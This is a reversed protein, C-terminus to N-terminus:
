TCYFIFFDTKFRESIKICKFAKELNKYKASLIGSKDKVRMSGRKSLLLNIDNLKSSCLNKSKYLSIHSVSKNDKDNSNTIVTLAYQDGFLQFTSFM